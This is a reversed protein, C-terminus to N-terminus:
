RTPPVHGPGTQFKAITGRRRLSRRRRRDAQPCDQRQRGRDGRQPQGQARGGVRLVRGVRRKAGFLVQGRRDHGHALRAAGLLWARPLRAVTAPVAARLIERKDTRVCTQSRALRNMAQPQVRVGAIRHRDHLPRLQVDAVVLFRTQPQQIVDRAALGRAQLDEGRALRDARQRRHVAAIM